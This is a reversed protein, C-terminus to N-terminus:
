TDTVEGQGRPRGLRSFVDGIPTGVKPEDSHSDLRYRLEFEQAETLAESSASEVSDLLAAALALREEQSLKDLGYRKVLASM